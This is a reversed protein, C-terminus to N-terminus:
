SAGPKSPTPGRQTQELRVPRGGHRGLDQLVSVRRRGPAPFPDRELVAAIRDHIGAIDGLLQRAQARLLEATRQGNVEARIDNPIFDPVISM